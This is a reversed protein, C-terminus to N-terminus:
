GPARGSSRLRTVRTLSRLLRRTLPSPAGAGASAGSRPGVQFVPQLERAQIRAAGIEADGAGNEEVRDDSAEPGLLEGEAIEGQAFSQDEVVELAVTGPDPLGIAIRVDAAAADDLEALAATVPRLMRLLHGPQRQLMKSWVRLM